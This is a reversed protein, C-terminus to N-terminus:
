IIFQTITLSHVMYQQPKGSADFGFNSTPLPPALASPNTHQAM